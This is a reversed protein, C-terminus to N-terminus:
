TIEITTPLHQSTNPDLQYTAHISLSTEQNRQYTSLCAGSLNFSNM